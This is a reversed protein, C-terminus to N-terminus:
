TTVMGIRALEAVTRIEIGLERMTGVIRDTCLQRRERTLFYWYSALQTPILLPIPTALKERCTELTWTGPTRAGVILPVIFAELRDIASYQYQTNQLASRVDARQFELTYAASIKLREDRGFNRWQELSIATM